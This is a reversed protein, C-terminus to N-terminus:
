SRVDPGKLFADRVWNSTRYTTTICVLRSPLQYKSLDLSAHTDFLDNKWVTIIFKTSPVVVVCVAYKAFERRIVLCLNRNRNIEVIYGSALTEWIEELSISRQAARGAAYNGLNWDWVQRVGSEWSTIEIADMQCRHRRANDM